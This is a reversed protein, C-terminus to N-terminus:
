LLFGLIDTPRHPYPGGRVAAPFSTGGRIRVSRLRWRRYPYAEGPERVPHYRRSIKKAPPISITSGVQIEIGAPMRWFHNGAFLAILGESMFAQYEEWNQETIVTGPLPEALPPAPTAQAMATLIFFTASIFILVAGGLAIENQFKAKPSLM